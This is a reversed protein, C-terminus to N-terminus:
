KLLFSNCTYPQTRFHRREPTKIRLKLCIECRKRTNRNNVKFLYIIFPFVSPYCFHVYKKNVKFFKSLTQCKRLLKCSNKSASKATATKVTLITSTSFPFKQNQRNVDNSFPIRIIYILCFLWYREVFFWLEKLQLCAPSTLSQVRFVSKKM